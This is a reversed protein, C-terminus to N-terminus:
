TRRGYQRPVTRGNHVPNRDSRIRTVKDREVNNNYWLGRSFDITKEFNKRCTLGFVDLKMLFPSAM